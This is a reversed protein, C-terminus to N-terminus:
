SRCTELFSSASNVWYRTSIMTLVLVLAQDIGRRMDMHEIGKRSQFLLKSAVLTDIGLPLFREIFVM